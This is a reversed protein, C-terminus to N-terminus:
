ANDKQPTKAILGCLGGFLFLIGPLAWSLIGVGGSFAGGEGGSSGIAMIMILGGLAVVLQVAGGIKPRSRCLSAGIIGLISAITLAGGIGAGTKGTEDAKDVDGGTGAEIAGGAIGGCASCGAGILGSIGAILGLVFAATRM